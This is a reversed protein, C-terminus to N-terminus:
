AHGLGQGGVGGVGRWRGFGLPVVPQAQQQFRGALPNKADVQVPQTHEDVPGASPQQTKLRALHQALVHVLQGVMRMAIATTTVSHPPQEAALDLMAAVAEARREQTPLPPARM